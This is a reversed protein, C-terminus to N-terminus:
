LCDCRIFHPPRRGFGRGQPPIKKQAGAAPQYIATDPPDLLLFLLYKIIIYFLLYKFDLLPPRDRDPSRQTILGARQGSRWEARLMVSSTSASLVIRLTEVWGHANPVEEVRWVRLGHRRERRAGDGDRESEGGEISERALRGGAMRIRRPGAEMREGRCLLLGLGGLNASAFAVCGRRPREM